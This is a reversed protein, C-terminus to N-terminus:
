PHPQFLVVLRVHHRGAAGVVHDGGAHAPRKTSSSIAASGARAQDLIEAPALRGRAAHISTPAPTAVAKPEETL